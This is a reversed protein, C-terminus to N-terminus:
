KKFRFFIVSFLAGFVLGILLFLELNLVEASISIDLTELTEFNSLKKFSNNLNFIRFLWFLIGFGITISTVILRHRLTKLKTLKEVILYLVPISGIILAFMRRADIAQVLSGEFIITQWDNLLSLSVEFFLKHMLYGIIMFFFGLILFLLYKRM